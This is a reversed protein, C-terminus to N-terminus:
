FEKETLSSYNQVVEDKTEKSSMKLAKLLKEVGFENFNKDENKM